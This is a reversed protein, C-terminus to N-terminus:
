TLRLQTDQFDYVRPGNEGIDALFFPNRIIKLPLSDGFLSFITMTVGFNSQSQLTRLSCRVQLEGVENQSSVICRGERRDEAVAFMTLFKCLGLHLGPLTVLIKSDPKTPMESSVSHKRVQQRLTSKLPRVKVTVSAPYSIPNAFMKFSSFMYIQLTYM